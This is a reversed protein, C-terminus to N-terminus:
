TSVGDRAGDVSWREIGGKEYTAAKTIDAVGLDLVGYKRVTVDGSGLAGTHLMGVAGQEIFSKGSFASNDGRVYLYGAGWKILNSSGALGAAIVGSQTGNTTGSGWNVDIAATGNNLSIVGTQLFTRLRSNTFNFRLRAPVDDQLAGTATNTINIAGITSISDNLGADWDIISNDVTNISAM